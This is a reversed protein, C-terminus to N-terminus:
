RIYAKYAQVDMLSSLESLNDPAIEALWGSGFPDANVISPSSQVADNVHVIIGSVPADLSCVSKTAEIQGFSEGVLVHTGQPKLEVHVIDGLSAQSYDDIGVRVVQGDHKAWENSKTYLLDNKFTIM